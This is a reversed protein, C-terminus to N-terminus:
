RDLHDDACGKKELGTKLISEVSPIRQIGTRLAKELRKTKLAKQVCSESPCVYCSRGSLHAKCDTVVLVRESVKLRIMKM